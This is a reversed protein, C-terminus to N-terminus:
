DDAYLEILKCNELECIGNEVAVSEKCVLDNM